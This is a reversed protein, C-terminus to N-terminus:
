EAAESASKLEVVNDDKDGLPLRGVKKVREEIGSSDLYAMLHHHAEALKEDPMAFLRKTINFAGRHLHKNDVANTVAERLNGNVDAVQSKARKAMGLLSKLTAEPTVPVVGASATRKKSSM